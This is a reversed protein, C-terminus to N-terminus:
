PQNKSQDLRKPSSKRYESPSIGVIKKFQRSFHFEDYFGLNLALDIIKMDPYYELCFKAHEIKEKLQFQHITIGFCDKFATEATRVGVGLAKAIEKNSPSTAQNVLMKKINAGLTYKSRDYIASESLECLLANLYALAKLSNGKNEEDIIRIILKKIQPNDKANTLTNICVGRESGPLHLDEGYKDGEAVSFHLYMTHTGAPCNEVGIRSVRAPQIFLSDAKANITEDGIKLKWEGKVVYSIVHENLEGSPHKMPTLFVNQGAVIIKRGMNLEFICSM